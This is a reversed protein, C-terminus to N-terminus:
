RAILDASDIDINRVLKRLAGLADDLRDLLL